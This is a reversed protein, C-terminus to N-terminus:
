YRGKLSRYHHVLVEKEELALKLKEYKKELSANRHNLKDIKSHANDLEKKLRDKEEDEGSAARDVSTGDSEVRVVQVPRVLKDETKVQSPKNPATRPEPIPSTDEAIVEDKQAPVNQPPQQDGLHMIAAQLAAAGQNPPPLYPGSMALGSSPRTMARKRGGERTAADHADVGFEDAVFSKFASSSWRNKLQTEGRTSHFIQYSIEVWRNGLQAQGQYLKMDDERSFPGHNLAPDLHNIWRNRVQKGTRGPLKIALDGWRTFPRNPDALIQRSVIEDERKTWINNMKYSSAAISAKFRKKLPASVDDKLRVLVEEAHRKKESETRTAASQIAEREAVYKTLAAQKAADYAFAGFEESVFKKFAASNYRNKVQNESRTSQFVKESIEVWRNGVQSYSHPYLIYTHSIYSLSPHSSSCHDTGEEHGNWLKMDDEWSFPLRNLTPDLFNIWRDRIQKGTRGPLHDALDVWRSFQKPNPDKLVSRTM